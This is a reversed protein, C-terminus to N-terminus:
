GYDLFFLRDEWWQISYALSILRSGVLSEGAKQVGLLFLVLSTLLIRQPLIKFFSSVPNGNTRCQVPPTLTVMLPGLPHLRSCRM